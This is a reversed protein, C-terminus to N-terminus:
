QIKVKTHWYWRKRKLRTEWSHPKNAFLNFASKLEFVPISSTSVNKFVNTERGFFDYCMYYYKRFYKTVKTMM